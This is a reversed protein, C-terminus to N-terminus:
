LEDRESIRLWSLIDAEQVPKARLREPSLELTQKCRTCLTKALTFLSEGRIRYRSGCKPCAIQVPECTDM